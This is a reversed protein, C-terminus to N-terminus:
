INRLKRDLVIKIIDAAHEHSVAASDISLHYNDSVGWRRGTFYNYYNERQKDIKQARERATYISDTEGRSLIFKAREELPAHIFVSLLGPHDRLLHDATRGVIVCPGKAAIERIVESQTQYLGERSMTDDTYNSSVAGYNLQLLSRLFSPKKEDIHAFIRSSLGLSEAAESLLRKDYYPVGLSNAVAEAIKRGGSGYQRGVVILFNSSLTEM